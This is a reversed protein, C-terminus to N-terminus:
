RKDTLTPSESAKNKEDAEDVVEYDADITGFGGGRQRREAAQRQAMIRLLALKILLHRLPPVLLLAGLADTIFGPTLLLMAAFALAAGHALERVPPRQAEIERRANALTKLGQFRLIM